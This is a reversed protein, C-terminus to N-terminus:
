PTSIPHRPEPARDNHDRCPLRAVPTLIPSTDTHTEVKPLGPAGDPEISTDFDHTRSESCTM